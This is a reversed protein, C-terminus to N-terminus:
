RTPPAVEDDSHSTADDVGVAPDRLDVVMPEELGVPAPRAYAREGPETSGLEGLQRGLECLHERLEAEVEALEAHRAALEDLEDRRDAVLRDVEARAREHRERDMRAVTEDAEALLDAAARRARDLEETARARAAEAEVEARAVVSTAEDRAARRLAEAEREGERRVEVLSDHLTRLAGAVERGAELFHDGEGLGDAVEALFAEVEAMDYGPWARVFRKARIREPDVSVV